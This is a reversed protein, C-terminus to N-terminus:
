ETRRVPRLSTKFRLDGSAWRIRTVAQKAIVQKKSNDEGYTVLFYDEAVHLVTCLTTARDVDLEVFPAVNSRFGPGRDTGSTQAEISSEYGALAKAAKESVNPYKKELEERKLNRADQAFRFQEEDYIEVSVLSDGQSTRIGIQMNPKIFGLLTEPFDPEATSATEEHSLIGIMM